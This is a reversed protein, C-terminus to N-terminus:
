GVDASRAARRIATESWRGEGYQGWAILRSPAVEILADHVDDEILNWEYKEEFLPSLSERLEPRLAARGEMILAAEPNELYAAVQVHPNSRINGIKVSQSPTAM